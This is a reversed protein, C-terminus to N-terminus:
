IELPINYKKSFEKFMQLRKKIHAGRKKWDRKLEKLLKRNLVRNIDDIELGFTKTIQGASANLLYDNILTIQKEATARKINPQLVKGKIDIKKARKQLSVYTANQKKTELAGDFVSGQIGWNRKLILDFAGTLFVAQKHPHKYLLKLWETEYESPIGGESNSFIYNSIMLAKGIEEQSLVSLLFASPYRQNQYLYIADGHLRVANHLASLAFWNLKRLNAM